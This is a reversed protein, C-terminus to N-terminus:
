FKGKTTSFLTMSLQNNNNCTEFNIISKGSYGVPTSCLSQYLNSTNTLNGSLLGIVTNKITDHSTNCNCELPNNNLLFVNLYKDIFTVYDNYSKVGYQQIVNDDFSHINNYQLDVIATKKLAPLYSSTQFIWNFKNNFSNIYNFKLDIIM